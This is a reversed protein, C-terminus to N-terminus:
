KLRLPLEKIKINFSFLRYVADQSFKIPWGVNITPLTHGLFCVNQLFINTFELRTCCISCWTQFPLELTWTRLWTFGQRYTKVHAYRESFTKNQCKSATPAHLNVACRGTNYGATRTFLRQKCNEVHRGPCLELASLAPSCNVHEFSQSPRTRQLSFNKTQPKPNKTLSTLLPPGSQGMKNPGPGLGSSLLISSFNPQFSPQFGLGKICQIVQQLNSNL